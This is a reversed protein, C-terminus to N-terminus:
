GATLPRGRKRIEIRSTTTEAAGLEANGAQACTSASLLVAMVVHKWTADLSAQKPDRRM